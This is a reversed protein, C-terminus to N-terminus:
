STAKEDAARLDGCTTEVTSGQSTTADGGIGIVRGGVSATASYTIVVKANDPLGRCNQLAAQRASSRTQTTTSTNSSRGNGGAVFRVEHLDLSRM